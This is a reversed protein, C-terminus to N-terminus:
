TLGCRIRLTQVKRIHGLVRAVLMVGHFPLLRVAM